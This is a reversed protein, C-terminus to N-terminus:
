RSDVWGAAEACGGAVMAPTLVIMTKDKTHRIVVSVGLCLISVYWQCIRAMPKMRTM